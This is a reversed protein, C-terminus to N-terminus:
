AADKECIVQNRGTSKAGLLAQDARDVITEMNVLRADGQGAISVGISTTVHIDSQQDPLQIPCAETVQRLREAAHRAANLDTDPMVVLFEEGGIRAILDVNRVNAKLRKAVETLVLDGARHGHTDNIRKFHDLDLVMVAFPNGNKCSKEAIRAMHPLAYRRNFLGTLPDTVAMRLGKELTGRLKDAKQKRRLLRELRFAVEPGPITDTVIESAGLDLPSPTNDDPADPRTEVVMIEAHRTATRHRLEALLFMQGKKTSDGPYLVIVDPTATNGALLPLLDRDKARLIRASQELSQLWNETATEPGNVVLIQAKPNFEPATEQFGLETATGERLRLEEEVGRVRLASRIHALLEADRVPKDLVDVAGAVLAAYREAVTFDGALILVPINATAPCDSLEQCLDLSRDGDFGGELLILDPRESTALNLLETGSTAQLVGYSAGTLRVKLVIRNTAVNDAILIRGPM